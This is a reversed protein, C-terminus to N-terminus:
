FSRILSLNFSYANNKGQVGWWNNIRQYNFNANLITQKKFIYNLGSTIGNVSSQKGYKITFVGFNVSLNQKIINSYIIKHSIFNLSDLNPQTKSWENSLTIEHNGDYQLSNEIAFINTQTKPLNIGSIGSHTYILTSNLFFRNISKFYTMGAIILNTQNFTRFISDPHNNGQQYPSITLFFNPYKEFHTNANLGYGQLKDTQSSFESPNNKLEKYFIQTNIKNKFFSQDISLEIESYATRLFLNGITKFYNGYYSYKSMLKTNKFLQFNLNSTSALHDKLNIVQPTLESNIQSPTRKSYDSFSIIQAMQLKKFLTKEGQFSIVSNKEKEIIRENDFSTFLYIGFKSDTRKKEVNFGILNKQYQPRENRNQFINSNISRGVSFGYVLSNSQIKFDLGRIPLGLLTHENYKLTAQGIQFEKIEFKNKYKSVSDDILSNFDKSQLMQYIEAVQASDKKYSEYWQNWKNELSDKVKTLSDIKNQSSHYKNLSDKFSNRNVFSDSSYKNKNAQNISDIKHNLQSKIENKLATTDLQKVENKIHEDIQNQTNQIQDQIAKALFEELNLNKQYKDIERLYNEKIEQKHSELDYQVKIYSNSYINNKETTHFGTVKIPLGILSLNLNVTLRSYMLENRLWPNQLNSIYNESNVQGNMKNHNLNIWEKQPLVFPLHIKLKNKTQHLNPPNITNSDKGITFTDNPNMIEWSHLAYYLGTQAKLENFFSLFLFLGLSLFHLAFQKINKTMKLFNIQLKFKKEIITTGFKFFPMYM